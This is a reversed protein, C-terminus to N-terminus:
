ISYRSYIFPHLSHDPTLAICRGVICRFTVIRFLCLQLCVEHGHTPGELLDIWAGSGEIVRIKIM